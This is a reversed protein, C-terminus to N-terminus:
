NGTLSQLWYGPGYLDGIDENVEDTWETGHTLAYTLVDQAITNQKGPTLLKLGLKIRRLKIEAKMTSWGLDLQM